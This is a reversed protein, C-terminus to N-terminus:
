AVAEQLAPDAATMRDIEDARTEWDTIRKRGFAALEARSRGRGFADLADRGRSAAEDGMHILRSIEAADIGTPSNVSPTPASQQQREQRGPTPDANGSRFDDAEEESYAGHLGALKIVVRDKARKEAMAYVYSAQKGSVRYNGGPKGDTQILAEGFSWESIGDQRSARVLVVCEDRESRIVTPMDWTIKLAASLRELASHKIVPTGQVAWLDVESVGVNHTKFLSAIERKDM